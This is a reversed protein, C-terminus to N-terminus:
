RGLLLGAFGGRGRTRVVLMDADEAAALLAEAPSGRTLVTDIRLSRHATALWTPPCSGNRDHWARRPRDALHRADM